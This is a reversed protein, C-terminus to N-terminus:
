WELEEPDLGKEEAVLEKAEDNIREDTLPTENEVIRRNLEYTKEEVEQRVHSEVEVGELYNDEELIEDCEVCSKRHGSNVAQCNLCRLPILDQEVSTDAEDEMGYGSLYNEGAEEDDIRTYTRTEDSGQVHGVRTDIMSESMLEAKKLYSIRGKRFVHNVEGELKCQTETEKQAKKLKRTFYRYSAPKEPKNDKLNPFLFADPNDPEPHGNELWYKLIPAAVACPVKRDPSQKNGPVKLTISRGNVKVSGNRISLCEGIRAATDWLTLLIAPMRIRNVGQSNAQLYRALKEIDSPIPLDDSDTREKDKEPVYGKFTEPLLESHEKSSPLGHFELLRQVFNNYEVKTKQKYGPPYYASNQIQALIKRIKRKGEEDEEINDLSFDNYEMVKKMSIIYRYDRSYSNNKLSLWNKFELALQKNEESIQDSDQLNQFTTKLRKEFNHLDEAM